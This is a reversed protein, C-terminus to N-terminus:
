LGSGDYPDTPMVAVSAVEPWLRRRPATRPWRGGRAHRCPSQYGSAERDLLFVVMAVRGSMAPLQFIFPRCAALASSRLIMPPARSRPAAASMRTHGGAVRM